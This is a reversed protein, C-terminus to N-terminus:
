RAAELGESEVEGASAIGAAPLYLRETYEHLMRTTSFGCLTTAMSRRMREIWRHHLGAADVEYYQPVVEDELIRYLDMADAWDQAAEDPTSGPGSVGLWQRRDLGRGVLRRPRQPQRDRKAAAKM